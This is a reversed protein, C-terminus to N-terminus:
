RILQVVMICALQIDVRLTLLRTQRLIQELVSM